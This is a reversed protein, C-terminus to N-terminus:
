GERETLDYENLNIPRSKLVKNIINKERRKKDLKIAVLSIAVVGVLISVAYHIGTADTTLLGIGIFLQSIITLTSKKM